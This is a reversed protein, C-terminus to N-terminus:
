FTMSKSGKVKIMIGLRCNNKSNYEADSLVKEIKSLTLDPMNKWPPDIERLKLKKRSKLARDHESHFELFM